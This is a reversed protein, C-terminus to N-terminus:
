KWKTKLNWFNKNTVKQWNSLNITYYKTTPNTLIWNQHPIELIKYIWTTLWNFEYYGQNNTLIFPEINEECDNNNNKDICIKWWAMTKETTEKIWNSNLDEYIYWSIEWQYTEPREVLTFNIIKPEEQNWFKNNM